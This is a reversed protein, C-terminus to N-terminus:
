APDMRQPVTGDPRPGIPQGLARAQALAGFAVVEAGLVLILSFFYIWVGLIVIPALIAGYRQPHFVVVYLPWIYSLIQFLFAALAAGQWVHGVRFRPEVNPFVAYIVFFLLFGALLSVLSGVLFSSVGTLPARSVIRDLLAAATTAIVIVLMLLTFVFIMAVDLLKEQVLPRGRVQFIPQFVTAIAGGINSGGWMTGVVGLVWLLGTHNVVLQVLGGLDAPSLVHQLAQSLAKLIVAQRAPDHLVLGSIAILGALLPIISSLVGWAVVSALMTINDKLVKDLFARPLM